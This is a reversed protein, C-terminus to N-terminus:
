CTARACGERAPIRALMHGLTGAHHRRLFARLALIARIAAGDSDMLGIAMDWNDRVVSSFSTRVFNQAAEDM